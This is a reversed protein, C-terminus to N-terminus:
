RTTPLFVRILEKVTVRKRCTPCKAQRSIATKICGKCFIHGCKTSTEETFPCMCIPCSFKPEEPPPPPPKPSSERVDVPVHECDIVPQNPPIRRRKNSVNAPLRTTGGSEVDVMLPRRRAGASKSKAEAFASASSEIVDDEIADVDIMTPVPQSPVSAGSPVVTPAERVSASTTGEHDRPVDNLDIVAKRRRIGRSARSEQSSM